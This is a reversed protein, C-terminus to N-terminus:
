QSIMLLIKYKVGFAFNMLTLKVAFLLISSKLMLVINLTDLTKIAVTTEDIEFSTSTWPLILAVFPSARVTLSPPNFTFIRLPSSIITLPETEIAVDSGAPELVIPLIELITLWNGAPVFLIPSTSIALIGDIGVPELVIPLINLITLWNGAPVFM